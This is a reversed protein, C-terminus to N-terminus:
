LAEKCPMRKVDFKKNHPVFDLQIIKRRSKHIELWLSRGEYGVMLYAEGSYTFVSNNIKLTNEGMMTPKFFCNGHSNITLSEYDGIIGLFPKTHFHSDMRSYTFKTMNKLVIELEDKELKYKKFNNIRFHKDIKEKLGDFGFYLSKAEDESIDEDFEIYDFKISLSHVLEKFETFKKTIKYTVEEGNYNPKKVEYEKGNHEIFKGNMVMVKRM